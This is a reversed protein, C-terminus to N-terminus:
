SPTAMCRASRWCGVREDGRSFLLGVAAAGCLWALAIPHVRIREGAPSYWVSCLFLGIGLPREGQLRGGRAPRADVDVAHEVRVLRLKGGLVERGVCDM